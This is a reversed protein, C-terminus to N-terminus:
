SFYLICTWYEEGQLDVTACPLGYLFLLGGGEGTFEAKLLISRVMFGGDYVSFMCGM